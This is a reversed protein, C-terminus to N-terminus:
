RSNRRSRCVSRFPAGALLRHRNTIQYQMPWEGRIFTRAKAVVRNIGKRPGCLHRHSNRQRQGHAVICTESSDFIAVAVRESSLFNMWAAACALAADEATSPSVLAQLIELDWDEQDGQSQSKQLPETRTTNM